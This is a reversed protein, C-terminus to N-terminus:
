KHRIQKNQADQKLRHKVLGASIQNCCKMHSCCISMKINYFIKNVSSHHTLRRFFRGKNNNNNESDLIRVLSINSLLKSTTKQNKKKNFRTAISKTWYEIILSIMSQWITWHWKKKFKNAGLSLDKVIENKQVSKYCVISKCFNGHM